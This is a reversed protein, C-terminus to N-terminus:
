PRGNATGWWQTTPVWHRSRDSLCSGASAKTQTYRPCLLLRRISPTLASGAALCRYRPPVHPIYSLERDDPSTESGKGSLPAPHEYDM